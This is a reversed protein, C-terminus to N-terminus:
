KEMVKRPPSKKFNERYIVGEHIEIVNVGFKAIPLIDVSTITDLIYGNRM